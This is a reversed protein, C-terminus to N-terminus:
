TFFHRAIIKAVGVRRLLKTAQARTSRPPHPMDTIDDTGFNQDVYDGQQQAQRHDTAQQINNTSDIETIEDEPGETQAPCQNPGRDTRWRLNDEWEDQTIDTNIQGKACERNQEYFCKGKKSERRLVKSGRQITVQRGILEIISYPKPDYRPKGKRKVKEKLLVNM